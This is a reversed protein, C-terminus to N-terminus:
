LTDRLFEESGKLVTPLSEVGLLRCDAGVGGVVHNMVSEGGM